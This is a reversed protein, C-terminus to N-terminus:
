SFRARGFKPVSPRPNSDRWGYRGGIPVSVVMTTNARSFALANSTGSTIERARVQVFSPAARANPTAPLAVLCLVVALMLLGALARGRARGPRGRVTMSM